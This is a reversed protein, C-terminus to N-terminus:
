SRAKVISGGVLFAVPEYKDYTYIPEPNAVTGFLFTHGNITFVSTSGVGGGDWKQASAVSSPASGELRATQAGASSMRETAGTVAFSHGCTICFRADDPSTDKCASCHKV